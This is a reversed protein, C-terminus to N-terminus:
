KGEQKLANVQKQLDIVYLMLEEIKKIMEASTKGVELGESEIVPGPTVDPLHKNTKIFNEVETLSPLKYDDAFVYDCWGTAVRVEKARMTGCVDLKYAPNPTGIGVNNCLDAIIINSTSLGGRIYTDENTGYAFHSFLTTGQFSAADSATAVRKVTLTSAYNTSNLILRGDPTLAMPVTQTLTQDAGTSNNSFSFNLVGNTPNLFVQAAYGAAMSKWDATGYYSNFGISPNNQVISIGTSGQGFIANTKLSGGAVVLKARSPDNTGIGVNGTKFPSTAYTMIINGPTGSSPSHPSIKLDSGSQSISGINTTGFTVYGSVFNVFNNSGSITLADNGTIENKIVYDPTGNANVTLGTKWQSVGTQMYKTVAEFGNGSRDISLQAGEGTSKILIDTLTTKQVHFLALPSATGIGVKGTSRITMRVSNNTRFKLDKTDITGLFNTTPNTGSNGTLNWTQASLTQTLLIGAIILVSKFLSKLNMTRLKSTITKTIM